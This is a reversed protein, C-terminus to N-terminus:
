LIDDYELATSTDTYEVLDTSTESHFAQNIFSHHASKTILRQNGGFSVIINIDVVM